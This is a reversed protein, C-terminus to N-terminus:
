EIYEEVNLHTLHRETERRSLELILPANVDVFAVVDRLKDDAYGDSFDCTVEPGSAWVLAFHASRQRAGNTAWVDVKGRWRDRLIRAQNRGSIDCLALAHTRGGDMM